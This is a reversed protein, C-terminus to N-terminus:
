KEAWSAMKEKWTIALLPIKEKYEDVFDTVIKRIKNGYGKARPVCLEDHSNFPRVIWPHYGAPQLAWIRCQLRKTLEGGTSQIEHNAASRMNAAQIAFAAAFVASRAAGGITQMGRDERRQVRLGLKTWAKPPDEGLEFLAKCIKNELTYYRRFGLFSEIYEAPENWEIKTGIGGSQRMSCFKEFIRRRANGWEQFEECWERFADAAAEETVGVRQQLTYAEGGYLMAFVGNKSRTYKDMEGPLGATKMIDDYTMPKFLKAGFLGHIKFGDLIYQHLKPDGYVADAITIEFSDFDGGDLEEDEFALTFAERVYRARKIGQPNLGGGGGAMRNSLTGTVIYSAHLRDALLLKDYIEIEKGLHRFDLIQEAREAVPHPDETQILGNACKECGAGFCDDCVTSVKWKVLDELIMGRTSAKGNYRLAMCETEDLVETLYRRCVEPSGFGAIRGLEKRREIAVIRLDSIQRLDIAFGKWRVAGVMWALVSDDDDVAPCGFFDYLGKTYVVDDTAYKRGDENFAWFDIHYRIYIPWKKCWANAKSPFIPKNGAGLVPSLAYPAFGNEVPMYQKPVGVDDFGAVDTLGLADIALAKLGSSPAFKLVLDRFNPDAEGLDDVIEYLKWRETPDKKRSFYVNKLPIRESLEEALNQAVLTPVRKIRIEKRDMLSQYPGKRAYTMIDFVHNPKLCDGDRAQKECYIYEELCNIPWMSKDELLMLTTYTQCLHFGDFALNFGVLGDKNTIMWRILDITEQAPRRWVEHLHIPGDDEQWQILVTPGHLGCTETDFFIM